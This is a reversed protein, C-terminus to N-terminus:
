RKKVFEKSRSKNDMKLKVIKIQQRFENAIGRLSWSSSYCEWRRVVGNTSIMGGKCRECEKPIL